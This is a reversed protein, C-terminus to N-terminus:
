RSERDARTRMRPIVSIIAALLVGLIWFAWVEGGSINEAALSATM